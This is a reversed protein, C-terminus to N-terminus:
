KLHIPQSYSYSPNINIKYLGKSTYKIPYVELMIALLKIRLVTDSGYSDGNEEMERRNRVKKMGHGGGKGVM